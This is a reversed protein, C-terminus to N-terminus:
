VSLHHHCLIRGFPPYIALPSPPPLLSDLTSRCPPAPAPRRHASVHAQLLARQKEARTVDAEIEAEAAAISADCADRRERLTTAWKRHRANNAVVAAHGRSGLPAEAVTDASVTSPALHTLKKVQASLHSELKIRATLSSVYKEQTAVVAQESAIKQNLAAERFKSQMRLTRLRSSADHLAEGAAASAAERKDVMEQALAIEEKLAAATVYPM